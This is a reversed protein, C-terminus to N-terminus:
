DKGYTDVTFKVIAWSEGYFLNVQNPQNSPAGMNRLRLLTDASIARKLDQTYGDGPTVQAYVATGEDIWSPLNAITGDGAVKTIIHATEHRM